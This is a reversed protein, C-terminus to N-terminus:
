FSRKEGGTSEGVRAVTGLLRDEVPQHLVMVGCENRVQGLLALRQGGVDLLLEAVGACGHARPMLADRCTLGVQLARAEPVTKQAHAALRAM